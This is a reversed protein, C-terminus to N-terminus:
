NAGKISMRSPRKSYRDQPMQRLVTQRQHHGVTLMTESTNRKPNPSTTLLAVIHSLLCTIVDSPPTSRIM